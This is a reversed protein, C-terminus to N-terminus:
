RILKREFISRIEEKYTRSVQIKHGSILECQEAALSRVKLINVAYSQHVRIMYPSKLKSLSAEFPSILVFESGDEMRVISEKEKQEMYLIERPNIMKRMYGLKDGIVVFDEEVVKRVWYLSDLKQRAKILAESLEIPDPPKDLFDLVNLKYGYKAYHPHGSCIIVPVRSDALKRSIELGGLKPMLLDTILIDAKGRRVYEMGQVPDVTSFGVEFGEIMGIEHILVELIKEEDDILGIKLLNGM